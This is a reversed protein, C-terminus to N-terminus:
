TPNTTTMAIPAVAAASLPQDAVVVVVVFSYAGGVPTQKRKGVVVQTTVLSGAVAPVPVSELADV